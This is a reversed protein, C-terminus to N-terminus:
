GTARRPHWRLLRRGVFLSLGGVVFAAIAEAGGRLRGSGFAEGTLLIGALLGLGGELIWISAVAIGFLRLLRVMRAVRPPPVEYEGPPTSAPGGLRRAWSSTESVLALGGLAAAGVVALVLIRASSWAFLAHGAGM